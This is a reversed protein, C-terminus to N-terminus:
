NHKTVSSIQEGDKIEEIIVKRKSEITWGSPKLLMYLGALSKNTIGKSGFGEVALVTTKEEDQIPGATDVKVILEDGVKVLNQNNGDLKFWVLSPDNANDVNSPDKGSGDQPYFINM